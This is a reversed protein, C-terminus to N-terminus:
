ILWKSDIDSGSLPRPDKEVEAIILTSLVLIIITLLLFGIIKNRHEFLWMSWLADGIRFTLLLVAAVLVTMLLAFIARIVRSLQRREAKSKKHHKRKRAM